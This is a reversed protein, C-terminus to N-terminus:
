RRLWRDWGELGVSGYTKWGEKALFYAVYIVTTISVNSVAAYALSGEILLPHLANSAMNLSTAVRVPDRTYMVMIIPLLAAVAYTLIRSAGLLPLLVAIAALAASAVMAAAPAQESSSGTATALRLLLIPPVFANMLATGLYASALGPEVGSLKPAELIVVALSQAALTYPLKGPRRTMVALLSTATLTVIEVVLM